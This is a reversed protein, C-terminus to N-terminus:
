GKKLLEPNNVALKERVVERLFGLLETRWAGDGAEGSRIRECLERNLELGLREREHDDEPLEPEGDRGLLKWLAPIERDLGASGRELERAVIRSVNAAVLAFFRKRGELEGVVEESLFTAVAELLESPSPRDQM